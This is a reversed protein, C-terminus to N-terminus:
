GECPRCACPFTRVTLAPRADVSRLVVILSVHSTSTVDITQPPPLLSISTQALPSLLRLLPLKDSQLCGPHALAILLMSLPSLPAPAQVPWCYPVVAPMFAVAFCKRKGAFAAATSTHTTVPLPGASPSGANLTLQQVDVSLFGSTDKGHATGIVQLSSGPKLTALNRSRRRSADFRCKCANTFSSLFPQLVFQFRSLRSDDRVWQRQRDVRLHLM